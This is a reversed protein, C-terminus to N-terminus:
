FTGGSGRMQRAALEHQPHSELGSHLLGAVKAHSSLWRAVAVASSHHAEMRIALTKIGLLVLFSDQPDSIVEL